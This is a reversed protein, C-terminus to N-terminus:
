ETEMKWGYWRLMKRMRGLAIERGRRRTPTDLKYCAAYTVPLRPDVWALTIYVIRGKLMGRLIKDPLYEPGPVRAKTGNLPFHEWRVNLREGEPSVAFVKMKGGRSNKNRAYVEEVARRAGEVLISIPDDDLPCWGPITNWTYNHRPAM